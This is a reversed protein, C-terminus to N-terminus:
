FQVQVDKVCNGRWKRSSAIEQKLQEFNRTRDNPLHLSKM